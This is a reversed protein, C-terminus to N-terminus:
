NENFDGYFYKNQPNYKNWTEINLKTFKEEEIQEFDSCEQSRPELVRQPQIAAGDDDGLSLLKLKWVCCYDGDWIAYHDCHLCCFNESNKKAM